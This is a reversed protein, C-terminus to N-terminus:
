PFSSGTLFQYSLKSLPARTCAQSDLVLLFLCRAQLSGKLSLGRSVLLLGRVHVQMKPLHDSIGGVPSHELGDVCYSSRLNFVDAM